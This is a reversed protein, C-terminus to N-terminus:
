ARVIRFAGHGDPAERYLPKDRGYDPQASGSVAMAIAESLSMGTALYEDTLRSVTASTM